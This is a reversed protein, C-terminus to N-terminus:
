SFVSRARFGCLGQGITKIISLQASFEAGFTVSFQFRQTDKYLISFKHDTVIVYSFGDRAVSRFLDRLIM